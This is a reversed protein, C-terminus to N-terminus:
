AKKFASRVRQLVVVVIGLSILLLASPEPTAIVSPTYTLDASFILGSPATLNVADFYIWNTGSTLLSSITADSYTQVATFAETCAAGAGCPIGTSGPLANGNIYIGANTEGLANDVGYQISISASSVTSPLVFSAAYLATNGSGVSASASTGLWVAGPVDSAPFWFPTSNQVFAPTGTQASTFDATTFPAAFDGNAKGSDLFTVSSNSNITLSAAQSEAMGAFLLIASLVSLRGVSYNCNCFTVTM